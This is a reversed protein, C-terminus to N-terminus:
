VFTIIMKTHRSPMDNSPVIDGAVPVASMKVFEEAQSTKQTIGLYRAEQFWHQHIGVKHSGKGLVLGGTALGVDM